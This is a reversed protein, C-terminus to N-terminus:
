PPVVKIPPPPNKKKNIYVQTGKYLSCDFRRFSLIHVSPAGDTTAPRLVLLFNDDTPVADFSLDDFSRELGPSLEDIADDNLLLHEIDDEPESSSRATPKFADPTKFGPQLHPCDQPVVESGWMLNWCLEAQKCIENYHSNGKAPEHLLKVIRYFPVVMDGVRNYEDIAAYYHIHLSYTPIGVNCELMECLFTDEITDLSSLLDADGQLKECCEGFERIDTAVRTLIELLTGAEWSQDSPDECVPTGQFAHCDPCYSNDELIDWVIDEQYLDERGNPGLPTCLTPARNIGQKLGFM